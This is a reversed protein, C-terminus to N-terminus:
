QVWALVRRAHMAHIGVDIIRISTGRTDIGMDVVNRGTRRINLEFDPIGLGTSRVAAGMDM